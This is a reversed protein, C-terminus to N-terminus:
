KIMFSEFMRELYYSEFFIKKNLYADWLYYYSRCFRRLEIDSTGYEEPSGSIHSSVYWTDNNKHRYFVLEGAKVVPKYEKINLSRTNIGDEFNFDNEIAMKTFDSSDGALNYLATKSKKKSIRSNQLLYIAIGRVPDTYVEYGKKLMKECITVLGLKVFIPNAIDNSNAMCVCKVPREGTLERNRNITEYANLFASGEDPIPREHREKIFEDYIILDCDSLDFGRISSITSLAAAYGITKSEEAGMDICYKGMNKSIGRACKVHISYNRDREIAKFPSSDESKIINCQEQTRRLLIFCHSGSTYTDLCYDLSGYTKGTGRAGVVFCFPYENTIIAAMDVYGNELYKVTEKKM